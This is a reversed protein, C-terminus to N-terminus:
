FLQIPPTRVSQENQNEKKTQKDKYSQNEYERCLRILKECTDMEFGGIHVEERPIDLQESLWKYANSRTMHRRKWFTDFVRHTEMRKLRLVENAVDGLPRTTGKQCGVRANCNQCQYVFEHALGLRQTADGYVASAPILRVIGGCYKCIEPPKM